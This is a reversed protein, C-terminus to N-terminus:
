IRDSATRRGLIRACQLLLGATTNSQIVPSSQQRAPSVAGLPALTRATYAMASPAAVGIIAVMILYALFFSLIPHEGMWNLLAM